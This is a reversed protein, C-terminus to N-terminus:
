RKWTGCARWLLQAAGYRKRDALWIAARDVQRARWLRLRVRRPLPTLVRLRGRQRVKREWEARLRDVQEDTLPVAGDPNLCPGFYPGDGNV